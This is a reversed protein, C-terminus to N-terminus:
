TSGGGELNDPAYPWRGQQNAWFISATAKFHAEMKERQVLKSVGAAWFTDNYSCLACHNDQICTAPLFTELRTVQERETALTSRERMFAPVQRFYHRSHHLLPLIPLVPFPM